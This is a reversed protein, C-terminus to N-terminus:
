FGGHKRSKQVESVLTELLDRFGARDCRLTIDSREQVGAKDEFFLVIVAQGM